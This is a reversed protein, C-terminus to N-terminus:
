RLGLLVWPLEPVWRHHGLLRARLVNKFSRHWREIKGNHQPHYATTMDRKMGMILCLSVWLALTFQPGRYSTIVDPVGFRPIWERVILKACAQSSAGDGTSSLPYAEPWSTWRDIVTLLMNKGECQPLPGVLDVHIHSFRDTPPPLHHLPAKVHRHIKALQCPKCSLSWKSIDKSMGSWWYKQKILKYGAKFTPHVLQHVSDFVSHQLSTPVLIRPQKDKADVWISTEGANVLEPHFPTDTNLHRKIWKQLNLDADQERRFDVPSPTHYKIHSDSVGFVAQCAKASCCDGCDETNISQCKKLCDVFSEDVLPEDLSTSIDDDCPLQNIIGCSDRNVDASSWTDKEGQVLVIRSMADALGNRKGKLHRVHDIFQSIRNLHRRPIPLDTDAAKKLSGILPLHDTRVTIPQGEIHSRFHDVAYSIALLERDTASYNMQARNLQKSWFALPRWLGKQLQVLVAGVAINSADCWLETQAGIVPHALM